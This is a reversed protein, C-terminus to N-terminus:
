KYKLEDNWGYFIIQYSGGIISPLKKNGLAKCFNFLKITEINELPCCDINTYEFEESQYSSSLLESKGIKNNWAHSWICFQQTGTIFFLRRPYTIQNLSIYSQDLYVHMSWVFKQATVNHSRVPVTTYRPCM